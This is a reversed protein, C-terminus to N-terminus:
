RRGSGRDGVPPLGGPAASIPLDASIRGASPRPQVLEAEPEDLHSRQLRDANVHGLVTDGLREDTPRRGDEYAYGVQDPAGGRFAGAAAVCNM